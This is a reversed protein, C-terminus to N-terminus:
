YLRPEAQNNSKLSTSRLTSNYTNMEKYKHFEESVVTEVHTDHALNPSRLERYRCHLLLGWALEHMNVIFIHMSKLATQLLSYSVM